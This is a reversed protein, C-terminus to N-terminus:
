VIKYLENYLKEDTKINKKTSNIKETHQYIKINYNNTAYEIKNNNLNNNKKNNFYKNLKLIEYYIIFFM